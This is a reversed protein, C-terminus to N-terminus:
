RSEVYSKFSDLIAQWGQRQMDIANEDEVEFVETLRTAGNEEKFNVTVRRGDDLVYALLEESEIQEFTGTYDFAMSGDKAAMRYKLRGGVRLEQEASPCHWEATAFNWSVIHEPSTWCEWVEKVDKSVLAEVTVKHKM